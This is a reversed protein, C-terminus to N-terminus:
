RNPPRDSQFRLLMSSLWYDRMSSMWCVARGGPRLWTPLNSQCEVTSLEGVQAVSGSKGSLSRVKRSKKMADIITQFHTSGPDGKEKVLIKIAPVGNGSNEDGKELPRLFDAKRKSALLFVAEDTLIMLTDILEYGFVWLQLVSYTMSMCFDGEVSHLSQVFFIEILKRLYSKCSVGYLWCLFRNLIYPYFLAASFSVPFSSIRYTAMAVTDSCWCCFFQGPKEVYKQNSCCVSLQLVTRIESFRHEITAGVIWSFVSSPLSTVECSESSRWSEARQWHSVRSM